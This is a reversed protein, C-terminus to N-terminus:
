GIRGQSPTLNKKSQRTSGKQATFEANEADYQLQTYGHGKITKNISKIATKKSYFKLVFIWLPYNLGIGEPLVTRKRFVAALKPDHEIQIKFFSSLGKKSAPFEQWVTIIKM